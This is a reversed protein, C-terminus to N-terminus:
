NLQETESVFSTCTLRIEMNVDPPNEIPVQDMPTNALVTAPLIYKIWM